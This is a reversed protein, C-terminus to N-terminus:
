VDAAMRQCNLSHDIWDSMRRAAKADIEGGTGYGVPPDDYSHGGRHGPPRLCVLTTDEPWTAGCIAASSEGGLLPTM